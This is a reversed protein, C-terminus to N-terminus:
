IAKTMAVVRDIGALDKGLKLIDFGYGRAFTEIVDAQGFGTEVVVLAHPALLPPLESLIERTSDLGDEGSVLAGKPEYERLQRALGEFDTTKIYPPNSVVIDFKQSTELSKCWHSRVFTVRESLTLAQANQAAVALAAESADVAVGTAHSYERLLSLILCGSGTGLDLIRYPQATDPKLALVTEIVTESDARPILVDRTVIFRDKWFDRYGIIQAIPEHNLRRAVLADLAESQAASVPQDHDRVLAENFIGWACQALMRAELMALDGAIPALAHQATSLSEAISTM